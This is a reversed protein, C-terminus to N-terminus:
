EWCLLFNHVRSNEEVNSIKHEKIILKFETGKLNYTKKIKATIFLNDVIDEINATDNKDSFFEIVKVRICENNIVPNLQVDKEKSGGYEYRGIGVDEFSVEPEIIDKFTTLDGEIDGKENSEFTYIKEVKSKKLIEKIIKEM